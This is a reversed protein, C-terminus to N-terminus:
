CRGPFSLLFEDAVRRLFLPVGLAVAIPSVPGGGLARIGGAQGASRKPKGSRCARRGICSDRRSARRINRNEAVAPVGGLARDRRSARRYRQRNEAVAPGAWHLDRRSARRINRNEAVAPGGGLARIGGTPRRSQSRLCSDKRLPFGCSDAPSGAPNPISLATRPYRSASRDAPRAPPIPSPSLQGQTAPLRVIRRALRRSQSRLSSDKPLPFGFSRGPSGAPNPISLATRPYRPVSIQRALRRSEM